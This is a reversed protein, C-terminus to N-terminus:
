QLLRRGDGRRRRDLLAPGVQMHLHTRELRVQSRCLVPLDGGREAVGFRTGWRHVSSVLWHVRLKMVLCLLLRKQVVLYWLSFLTALM